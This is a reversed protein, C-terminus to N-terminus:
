VSPMRSPVMGGSFSRCYRWIMESSLRRRLRSTRRISSSDRSWDQGATTNKAQLTVDYITRFGDNIEADSLDITFQGGETTGGNETYDTTELVKEGTSNDTVVLKFDAGGGVADFDTLTYPITLSGENVKFLTDPRTLSVSM